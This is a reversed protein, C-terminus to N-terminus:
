FDGRLIAKLMTTSKYVWRITLLCALPMGAWKFVVVFDPECFLFLVFMVLSVLVLSIMVFVSLAGLVLSLCIVLRRFAHIFRM